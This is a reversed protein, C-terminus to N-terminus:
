NNMTCSITDRMNKVAEDFTEGQSNAHLKECRGVFGGDDRDETIVVTHQKGQILLYLTHMCKNEHKTSKTHPKKKAAVWAGLERRYTKECEPDFSACEAYCRKHYSGVEDALRALHKRMDEESFDKSSLKKRLFTNRDLLQTRQTNQRKSLTDLRELQDKLFRNRMSVLESILAVKSEGSGDESTQPEDRNWKLGLQSAHEQILDDIDFRNEMNDLLDTESINDGNSLDPTVVKKSGTGDSESKKTLCVGEASTNACLDGTNGQVPLDSGDSNKLSSM